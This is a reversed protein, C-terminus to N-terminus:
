DMHSLFEKMLFTFIALLNVYLSPIESRLADRWGFGGSTTRNFQKLNPIWRPVENLYTLYAEGWRESLKKEEYLVVLHYIVSLYLIVLPLMWVLESLMSLGTAAIINGIYLPNRAIAYPGTRILKKGKNKKWPMRRGIHKTAWIRISIGVLAILIGVPWIVLHRETEKYFTIAMLGFLPLYVFGRLESIEKLITVRISLDM